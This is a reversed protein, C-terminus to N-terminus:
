DECNQINILMEMIFVKFFIYINIIVLIIAGYDVMQLERM